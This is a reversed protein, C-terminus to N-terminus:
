VARCTSSAQMLMYHGVGMIFHVDYSYIVVPHIRNLSSATESPLRVLRQGRRWNRVKRTVTDFASYRAPLRLTSVTM